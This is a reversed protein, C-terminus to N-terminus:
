MYKVAILYNCIVADYLMWTLIERKFYIIFAESAAPGTKLM